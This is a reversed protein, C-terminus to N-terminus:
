LKPHQNCYAKQCRVYSQFGPDINTTLTDKTPSTGPLYTKLPKHEHTYIDNKFSNFQALLKREIRAPKKVFKM